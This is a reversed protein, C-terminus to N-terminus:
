DENILICNYSSVLYVKGDKDEIQIQEGDYDTWSAIEIEKVSDDPMRIIAKDYTYTTDIVGYNCSTFFLVISIMITLFILRNHM